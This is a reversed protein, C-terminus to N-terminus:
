ARFNYLGILGGVAIVFSVAACSIGSRSVIGPLMIGYNDYIGQMIAFVLCAAFMALIVSFMKSQAHQPKDKM